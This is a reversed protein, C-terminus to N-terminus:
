GRPSVAPGARLWAGQSHSGGKQSFRLYVASIAHPAACRFDHETCGLPLDSPTRRTGLPVELTALPLAALCLCSRAPKRAALSVASAHGPRLHPPPVACCAAWTHRLKAFPGDRRRLFLAEQQFMISAEEAFDTCFRILHLHCPSPTFAARMQFKSEFCRIYFIILTM